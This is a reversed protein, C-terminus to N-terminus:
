LYDGLHGSARAQPRNPILINGSPIATKGSVHSCVRHSEERRYTAASRRGQPCQSAGTCVILYFHALTTELISYSHSAAGAEGERDQTGVRLAWDGHAPVLGWLLGHTLGRAM